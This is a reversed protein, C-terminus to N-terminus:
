LKYVEFTATGNYAEELENKLKVAYDRITTGYSMTNLFQNLVYTSGFEVARVVHDVNVWMIANDVERM